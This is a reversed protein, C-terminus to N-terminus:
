KSEYDKILNVRIEHKDHMFEAKLFEDLMEKVQDITFYDAGFSIMNADNHERMLRAVTKNYAIGCRIGKVKNAAISVGEGSRCIIVGFKAEGSAVKEGVAIAFQPYNCSELSYTGCDVIDYGNNRLYEILAKKYEFGGHDAGIAIKM